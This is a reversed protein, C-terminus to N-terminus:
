KIETISKIRFKGKLSRLEESVVSLLVAYIDDENKEAKVEAKTSTNEKEFNLKSFIKSFVIISLALTVLALFVISLGLGSTILSESFSMVSGKFM